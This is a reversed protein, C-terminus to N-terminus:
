ARARTKRAQSRKFAQRTQSLAAKVAEPSFGLAKALKNLTWLPCGKSGEALAYLYSRSLGTIASMADMSRPRDEPDLGNRRAKDLLDKFTPKAVKTHTNM